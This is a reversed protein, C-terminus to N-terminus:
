NCIENDQRETNLQNIIIVRNLRTYKKGMREEHKVVTGKIMYNEGKEMDAKCWFHFLNDDQDKLFYHYTIIDSYVEKWNSSEEKRYVQLDFDDRKKLEGCYESTCEERNKDSIMQFHADKLDNAIEKLALNKPKAPVHADKRHSYYGGVEFTKAFWIVYQPDNEFVEQLTQGKYKGFTLFPVGDCTFGKKPRYTQADELEVPMGSGNCIKKVADVINMSLNGCYVPNKVLPHFKVKHRYLTFFVQQRGTPSVVYCGFQKRTKHDPDVKQNHDEVIKYAQDIQEDTCDTFLKKVREFTNKM